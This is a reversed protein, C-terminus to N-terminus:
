WTRGDLDNVCVRDVEVVNLEGNRIYKVTAVTGPKGRTSRRDLIKDDLMIGAKDAPSNNYVDRVIGQQNYVVGIVGPCPKTLEFLMFSGFAWGLITLIM